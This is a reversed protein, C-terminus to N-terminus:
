PNQHILYNNKAVGGSKMKCYVDVDVPRILFEDAIIKKQEDEIYLHVRNGSEKLKFLITSKIWDGYCEVGFKPNDEFSEIVNNAKDFQKYYFLPFASRDPHSKTWVSAEFLQSDSAAFPEDFFDITTISPQTCKGGFVGKGIGTEDFSKYIVNASPRSLLLNDYPLLSDKNILYAEWAKDINDYISDTPLSYLSIRETEVIPITKKLLANEYENLVASTSLVLFPRKDPLDYVIEKQILESSFIQALKYSRSISSRSMYVSAIPLGLSYSAKLSQYVSLDSNTIYIKESGLNYYPLPIIAQYDAAKINLSEFLKPYYTDLFESSSANLQNLKTRVNAYAELAWIALLLILFTWAFAVLQKQLLKRFVIYFYWATYVTFVYYFIWAFRGIARFQRIPGLYDFLHQLNWIFPIGMSFLLAVISALLYLRLHDPLIKWRLQGFNKRALYFVFKILTLIEAILGAFGVYAFGEWSGPKAGISNLFFNRMPFFVTTLSSNYKLFGYPSETRDIFPDTWHMILQLIIVPLLACVLVWIGTVVGSPKKRSSSLLYFIGVLGLFLCVILMYYVHVFSFFVITLLLAIGWLWQRQGGEMMRIALYWAMPFVFSYSLAYHGTFRHYQPSLFALILSIAIAYWPPLKFKRLILYLFWSAGIISLIMLFNLIGITHNSIDFVHRNFWGLMLSIVPQNDTFVPHEGYPYNMGTFWFGQDYKVAYAPTYYNKIGDGSGSFLYNNPHLIINGFFSFALIAGAILLIIGPRIKMKEM